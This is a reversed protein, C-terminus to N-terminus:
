KQTFSRKKEGSNKRPLMNHRYSCGTYMHSRYAYRCYSSVKSLTERHTANEKKLQDLTSALEANGVILSRIDEITKPLKAEVQQWQSMSQELRQLCEPPIVIQPPSEQARKQAELKRAERLEAVKHDFLKDVMERVDLPRTLTMEADMQELTEEMEEVRRQLNQWEDTPTSSGREKQVASADHMPVDRTKLEEVLVSVQSAYEKTEALYRNTEESIQYRQGLDFCSMRSQHYEVLSALATHLKDRQLFYEKDFEERKDELIDIGKDGIRAYYSSKQTRYWRDRNTEAESFHFRARVAREWVRPHM